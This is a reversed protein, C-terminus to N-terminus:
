RPRSDETIYRDTDIPKNANTTTINLKTLSRVLSKFPVSKFNAGIFILILEKSDADYVFIDNTVDAQVREYRTYVTWTRSGSKNIIFSSSFIVEEIATCMFVEDEKRNSLCNVHIGAVQLFTDLSIPDCYGPDIGSPQQAPVIVIGVAEHGLATVSEVGHYYNAYTVVDSFLNYVLKGRMGTAMPSNLIRDASSRRAYKQLLRLQNGPFADGVSALSVRGKVHETSGDSTNKADYKGSFIVFQWKNRATEHLHLFVDGEGGLGLPASMTLSEIHPSTESELPDGRVEMACRTALEVYLSAPCLNQGAVVHGRGALDFVTNSKNVSFLHEGASSRDQILSVLDYAKIAPKEIASTPPLETKPKYQIWHRSEDFQYPPLHLIEYLHCSSSHFLWFHAACGAKWLGSTANALSATADATELHTPLFIDSRGSNSLIRRTMAIIRSTSGAELWVASPLRAAIREVAEVFYVPQRTHQVVQKATFSSWSGGTSCTEIRLRPTQISISEALTNLGSLIGDALYSHYAHTSPLRVTKFAQCAKEAIAMSATDGALLFSRPGNYCAIDVRCTATKKLSNLVAYLEHLDCDVSLMLGREPGWSERLLHSRGAVLRFTDELSISGAICLASLQGFSHGIVTDVEM